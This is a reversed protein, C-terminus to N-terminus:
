PNIKDQSGTINKDAAHILTPTISIRDACTMTDVVYHKM